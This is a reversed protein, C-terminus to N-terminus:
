TVTAAVSEEFPPRQTSVSDRIPDLQRRELTLAKLAADPALRRGLALREPGVDHEEGRAPQAVVLYGAAEPRSTLGHAAPPLAVELLAVGTEAIPGPTASRPGKGGRTTTSIM